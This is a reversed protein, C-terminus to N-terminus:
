ARQQAEVRLVEGGWGAALLRWNEAIRGNAIRYIDTAIFNVAQGQGKVGNFTGTFHGTFRLHLVVRDGSVIMQQAECQLDPVAGHFTKSAVLPGAIGQPRGPPLSRDM